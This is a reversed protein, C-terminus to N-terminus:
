RSRPLRALKAFGALTRDSPSANVCSTGPYVEPDRGVARVLMMRRREDYELFM